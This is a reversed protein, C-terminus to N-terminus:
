KLVGALTAIAGVAGVWFVFSWLLLDSKTQAIRKDLAAMTDRFDGITANLRLQSQDNQTQIALRFEAMEARLELKFVTMEHRLEGVDGKLERLNTDISEMWNVFDEADSGLAEVLREPLRPAAM